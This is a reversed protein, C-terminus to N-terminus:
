NNAEEDAHETEEQTKLGDLREEVAELVKDKTDEAKRVIKRRNIDGRHPALLLGLVGGIVVGTLCGALFSSAQGTDDPGSFSRRHLM